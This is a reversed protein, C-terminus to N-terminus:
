IFSPPHSGLNSMCKYYGFQFIISLWYNKSINQTFLHRFFVRHSLITFWFYKKKSLFIFYFYYYYLLMKLYSPCSVNKNKQYLVWFFVELISINWFPWVLNESSCFWPCVMFSALKLEPPIEKVRRQLIKWKDGRTSSGHGPSNISLWLFHTEWVIALIICM